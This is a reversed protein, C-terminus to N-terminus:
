AGKRKAWFPPATYPDVANTQPSPQTQTKKVVTNAIWGSILRDTIDRMRVGQDRCAVKFAEHTATSIHVVPDM